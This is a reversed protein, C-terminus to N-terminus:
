EIVIKTIYVKGAQITHLCYVGKPLSLQLTTFAKALKGAWVKQGQANLLCAPLDLSDKGVSVTFNGKNPNPYIAVKGVLGAVFVVPSYSFTGDFDIQRLRYYSDYPQITTHNYSQITTSNGRGEVFAIKQYTLGDASMEVEFGKNNIESATSWELKVEETMEGRLGEVREGKLGVLTIPLPSASSGVTWHSFATINTAEAYRAVNDNTGNSFTGGNFANEWGTGSAWRYLVFDAVNGAGIIEDNAYYIRMTTPQNPTGVIQYIRAIGHGGRSAIAGKYHKRTVTVSYNAGTAGRLYLGTGAIENTADTVTASFIIGGGAQADSFATLDKVIHNNARDEVLTGQLNINKGNLDLDGNTITLLNTVAMDNSLTAGLANNLVFNHASIGTPNNMTQLATGNLEYNAGAQFTKTGSVNIAQFGTTHAIKLTSGMALTFSGTGNLNSTGQLELTGGTAINIDSGITLTNGTTIRLVGGSEILVEDLSLNIGLTATHTNRITINATNPTADPYYTATNWASGDPSSEWNTASGFTVNGTTRYIAPLINATLTPLTVDYNSADAGTPAFTTLIIPINNNASVSSFVGAINISVSESGVIGATIASFLTATNTNDYVKNNAGSNTVLMKKTIDATLTPQTVTYNGANAGGISYGSTTVTKGVGVNKDAFTGVASATNFTMGIADFGAIGVFTPSGGLTAVTNGDYVKSSATAGSITLTKATIDASLVPQTLTYNGANAGTLAYNFTNVPKATGVNKNNFFATVASADLTVMDGGVIGVLTPSGSLTATTNANYIKNNATVGTITLDKASVTSAVTAVNVNTAGASSLVINGSYTNPIAVASLRVYVTTSAITGASGVTVSSGFGSGASLSVEFGAPPTVLIGATMNTGSVSFSTNSSATGYVTSLASLSGASIITPTAVASGYVRVHGRNTGGAPNFPAGIAVKTGDSTLSVAFGARNGASEADIDSGVQGWASGSWEFVRVHGANAGVATNYPAGVALRGGNSSFSIATGFGNNDGEGNLSAGQQVWASGSWTFVRVHGRATGGGANNPAGVAIKSGDSSIAVASGAFNSNAEGDIDAGQQVWASGSWTYVRAHGRDAFVGAGATNYHAGIIVKSGDSSIAVARGSEDGDAEGNIDAGQQVWASGSWTYVRAHGRNSGGGTNFQAGIILRTGDGSLAVASGSRDSDAEGNIDTGQQVWASGSWTYVRVHGREFGGGTNYQAGIAVKNGDSSISVSAGSEDFDAEGDINGGQQTWASGSWAYIRVRGRSTGGGANYPAGIAVKTGDSSFSVSVGFNNSNAEGDIDAGQQTWQAKAFFSFFLMFLVTLGFALWIKRKSNYINEMTDM